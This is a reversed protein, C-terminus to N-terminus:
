PVSPQWATVEAQVAETVSSILERSVEVEYLEELTQAIDRTTMGKAYLAIIKEDFGPLRRQHKRILQPEFTGNRDRPTQVETQGFEGQVKKSSSGNRSNGSGRGASEHKAYGLHQDLEAELAKEVLSKKLDNLLGMFEEPSQCQSALESLLEERRSSASSQQKKRSM